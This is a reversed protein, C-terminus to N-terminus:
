TVKTEITKCGFLVTKCEGLKIGVRVTVMVGFSDMGRVM